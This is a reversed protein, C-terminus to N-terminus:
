EQPTAAFLAKWTMPGVIGDDELDKSRQFEKVAAETRPGFVGDATGANYGLVKLRKQLKRVRWGEHGITITPPDDKVQKVDTITGGGEAIYKKVM